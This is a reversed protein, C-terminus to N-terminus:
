GCYPHPHSLYVSSVGNDSVARSALDASMLGSGVVYGDSDTWSAERSVVRERALGGLVIQCFDPHPFPYDDSVASLHEIHLWGLQRLSSEAVLWGTEERVERLATAHLTEGPQRRGGPLAHTTGDRDTCVVVLDDVRVLCRASTVLEDPIAAAGLYVSVQLPMTGNRWTTEHVAAPTVSALVSSLGPHRSRWGPGMWPLTAADVM